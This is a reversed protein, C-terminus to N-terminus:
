KRNQGKRPNHTYFLKLMVQYFYRFLFLFVKTQVRGSLCQGIFKTELNNDTLDYKLCRLCRLKRTLFEVVVLFDVKEMFNGFIKRLNSILVDKKRRDICKEYM